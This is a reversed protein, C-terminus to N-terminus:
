SLTVCLGKVHQQIDIIRLLQILHSDTRQFLWPLKLHFRKAPAPAQVDPAAAHRGADYFLRKQILNCSFLRLRANIQLEFALPLMPMRL